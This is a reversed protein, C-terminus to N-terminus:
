DLFSNLSSPDQMLAESVGVVRYVLGEPLDTMGVTPRKMSPVSNSFSAAGIFSIQTGEAQQSQTESFKGRRANNVNPSVSGELEFEFPDFNQSSTKSDM